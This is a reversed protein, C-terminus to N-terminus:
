AAVSEALENKLRRTNFLLRSDFKAGQGVHWLAASLKRMVAVVGRQKWRGGDRKVKKLYWARIVLDGNPGILRLAALYLYQRAESPGRKTIKLQGKYKGSSREKLNLGLGKVYSSAGNYQSVEGACAVLVAATTTGLVPAMHSITTNGKSLQVVQKETKRGLKRCRNAEHALTKMGQQEVKIMPVGITTHASKIVQEIKEEALFNRGVRRMLQRVEKAQEIVAQPGGFKELLVLLTASTLGIITTLEPWHRALQAEIRNLMRHYQDDFNAMTRVEVALERENDTKEEWASSAGDLHLRAVIDAAKADHMSPVGDFVEAADHCRKGSVKFVPIGAQKLQWLLADGYTGTPEMAVELRDAPLRNLLGVLSRTGEIQKWKITILVEKEKTLLRGFCEEKAMDTGLVVHKGKVKEALKDENVKNVKVARYSRKKM